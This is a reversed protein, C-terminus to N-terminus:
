NGGGGEGLRIGFLNPQPSLGGAPVGDAVDAAGADEADKRKM